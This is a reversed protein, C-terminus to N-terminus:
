IVQRSRKTSRKIKETSVHIATSNDRKNLKKKKLCFVAYSIRMLSQLESTHEESRIEVKDSNRVGEADIGFGHNQSTVECHNRLINKVPHNIGRHGNHMKHTSIGNALALLQHGLCIGFLPKDAAIIKKVTEVAYDMAAPDGPGNSIFYGDPQWEEMEEFTTRAPFVKVLVGRDDFNRLINKKIGLDLAAVRIPADDNGYTYPETTSVESSLELGAMSPVGALKEKLEDLNTTESSIIANMAGKDRIHRVLARTDVDSIAVINENLYYDQISETAQKRSYNYTFNKCVLGAIKISGSEVEDAQIGYNGIHANTTVMIQAYYSPDTFIEQYGTMGTNFCIEGATTGIKGAAKGYFVTGDELLLVAPINEISKM